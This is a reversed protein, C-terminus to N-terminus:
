ALALEGQSALRVVQLGTIEKVHRGVQRVGGLCGLLKRHQQREELCGLGFRRWWSGMVLCWGSIVLVVTLNSTLSSIRFPRSGNPFIMCVTARKFSLSCSSSAAGKSGASKYAISAWCPKEWWDVGVAQASQFVRKGRLAPAGALGLAAGVGEWGGCAEFDREHLPGGTRSTSARPSPRGCGRPLLTSASAVKGAPAWRRATVSRRGM